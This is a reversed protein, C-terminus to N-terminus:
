QLKRYDHIIADKNNGFFMHEWLAETKIERKAGNETMTLVAEGIIRAYTPNAGSLKALTEVIWSFKQTAILDVVEIDRKRILEIRYEAGRPTKQTFILRNDVFKKTTPHRVTDKREIKVSSEDDDIIAGNRAIMFVPLRTYGFKKVSVLDCAIVTYEGFVARSWYWHNFIEQMGTNGWNHDHYGAGKMERVEKGTRLTSALDAAPVAVFWAFFYEQKDGFYWHGTKPRWMPLRPTMTSKFMVDDIRVFLEYTKGNYRLYNDGVRVDGKERSANIVTGEKDSYEKEIKSGDPRNINITVTPHAPGKVDFKYKTYFVVVVKTGDTFESDTYWWEYTGEKGSTRIGDERPAPQRTIGISDYHKQDSALFAGPGPKTSDCGASVTIVATLLIIATRFKM